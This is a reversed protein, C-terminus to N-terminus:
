DLYTWTSAGDVPAGARGRDGTGGDAEREGGDPRRRDPEGLPHRLRLHACHHVALTRDGQIYPVTTGAGQMIRVQDPRYYAWLTGLRRCLSCNCATLQAPPVEVEIRVAGCHCSAEIMAWGSGAVVRGARGRGRWGTGAVEASVRSGQRVGGDGVRGAAWAWRSKGTRGRQARAGPEGRCRRWAGGSQGLIGFVRNVACGARDARVKPTRTGQVPLPGHASRAAMKGSPQRLKPVLIKPAM